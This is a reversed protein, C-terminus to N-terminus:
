DHICAVKSHSSNKFLGVKKVAPMRDSVEGLQEEWSFLIVIDMILFKEGNNMGKFGETVVKFSMRFGKFDPHVVIIEDIEVGFLAKGMTM